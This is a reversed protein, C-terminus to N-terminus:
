ADLAKRLVPILMLGSVDSLDVQVIEGPSSFRYRRGTISGTVTLATKGIYEFRVNRRNNSTNEEASSIIGSTTSHQQTLHARKNGCNCM